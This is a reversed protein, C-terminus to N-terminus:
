KAPPGNDTPLYYEFFADKIIDVYKPDIAVAKAIDRRALDDNGRGIHHLARRWHAEASIPDIEIAKDFDSLARSDVGAGFSGWGIGMKSHLNGRTGPTGRMKEVAQSLTLGKIPVGDIQQYHRRGSNGARAIM